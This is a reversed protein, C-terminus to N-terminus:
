KKAIPRDTKFDYPRLYRPQVRHEMYFIERYEEDTELDEYLGIPVEAPIFDDELEDDLVEYILADIARAMQEEKSAPTDALCGEKTKHGKMLPVEKYLLLILQTNIRIYM